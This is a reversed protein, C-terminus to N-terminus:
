EQNSCHPTRQLTKDSQKFIDTVTLPIIPPETAPPEVPDSKCEEGLSILSELALQESSTKTEISSIFPEESFEILDPSEIKYEKHDADTQKPTAIPIVVEDEASVDLLLKSKPNSLKKNLPKNTYQHDSNLISSSLSHKNADARPARATPFIEACPHVQLIFNFCLSGM